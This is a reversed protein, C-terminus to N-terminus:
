KRFILLIWLVLQESKYNNKFHKEILHKLFCTEYKNIMLLHVSLICIYLINLLVDCESSLFILLEHVVIVDTMGVGEERCSRRGQLYIFKEEKM